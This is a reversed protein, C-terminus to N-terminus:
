EGRRDRKSRSDPRSPPRQRDTPRGRHSGGAGRDGRYSDAGPRGRDRQDRSPTIPLHVPAAAPARQTENALVLAAAAIESGDFEDLLPALALLEHAFTGSALIERLRARTATERSEARARPGDLLWPLVPVDGAVTRVGDIERPACLVVLQAPASALANRLTNADPVGVLVALAAGSPVQDQVVRVNTSNAYGLAALVRAAEAGTAEDALVVASVPDAEDLLRRLRDWRAGPSTALVRVVLGPRLAVPEASERMRRAKFLHRAVLAEVDATERAAILSRTADKPLESMVADLADSTSRDSPADPMAIIVQRVNGLPLVSRAVLAAAVLTPTVVADPIGGQLVRASRAPATLAILASFGPEGATAAATATAM